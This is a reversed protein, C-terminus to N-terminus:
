KDQAPPASAHKYPPPSANSTATDRADSAVAAEYTPPAIASPPTAVRGARDLRKSHHQWFFQLFERADPKLHPSTSLSQNLRNQLLSCSPHSSSSSCCCCSSSSFSSSAMFTFPHAAVLLGRRRRRKRMRKRMGVAVECGGGGAAAYRTSQHLSHCRTATKASWSMRWWSTLNTQLWILMM